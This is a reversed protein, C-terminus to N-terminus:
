KVFELLITMSFPLQEKYATPGDTGEACPTDIRQQAINVNSICGVSVLLLLRDVEAVVFLIYIM